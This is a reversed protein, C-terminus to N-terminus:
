APYVVGVVQGIITVENCKYEERVNGSSPHPILVIKDGPALEAYVCTPGTPTTVYFLEREYFSVKEAPQVQNLLKNVLLRSGPPAFPAANRDEEGVVVYCFHPPYISNLYEVEVDTWREVSADFPQTQELNADDRVIPLKIRRQRTVTDIPVEHTRSRPTKLIEILRRGPQLGIAADMDARSLNLIIRLSDLKATGPQRITGSIINGLTAKGIRMDPNNGLNALRESEKVVDKYSLGLLKMADVILRGLPAATEHQPRGRKNGSSRRREDHFGDLHLRRSKPVTSKASDSESDFPGGRAM